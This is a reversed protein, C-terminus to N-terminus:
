IITINREACWEVAYKENQENQYKHWEELLGQANVEGDFMGFVRTRKISKITKALKKQKKVDSVRNEVFGEMIKFHDVCNWDPLKIYREMNGVIENYLEDNDEDNVLEDWLVYMEGTEVSIYWGYEEMDDSNDLAELLTDLKVKLQM